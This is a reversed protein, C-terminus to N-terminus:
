AVTAMALAASAISKVSKNICSARAQQHVFVVIRDDTM